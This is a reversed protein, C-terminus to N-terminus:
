DNPAPRAYRARESVSPPRRRTGAPRGRAIWGLAPLLLLALLAAVTSRELSRRDVFLRVRHRGEPVEVGIRHVNATLIPAAKGDVEAQYLLDTRQVVLVGGGSGALTEVELAEPASRVVQATGGGLTRPPGAMLLAVDRHSDFAPLTLLAAAMADDPVPYVNSALTAEPLADPIEYVHVPHGIGPARALLRAATGSALPRDLVLRDIGWAALLRVRTTDNSTWVARQAAVTHVSSLGEPSSDLDFRRDWVPGTMPYLEAFARRWQWYRDSSPFPGERQRTPGFLARHDPNIVRASDPVYALAAPPQLYAGPTDMPYLPRLFVLQTAVHGAVLAAAAPWRAPSRRFLVHAAILYFALAALSWLALGLWRRREHDVFTADFTAPILLRIGADIPAPLFALAAGLLALLAALAGLVAIFNRRAAARSGSLLADLGIGCLLAGGIAALLWFKIPFRVAAFAPSEFLARAIPNFRGLALGVGIIVAGWAWV